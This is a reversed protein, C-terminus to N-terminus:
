DIKEPLWAVVELLKAFHLIPPRDPLGTGALRTMDLAEVEAEARELPWPRHHIEGRLVRGDSRAAYLCYRETLWRDLSSPAPASTGLRRYRAAFRAEPAGRHTRESRYLVDQGERHCSMRADFYPLHFLRRAARVALRSAADLSYFWVGPKDQAVVYTRLNLEAFASLGALVALVPVGRPRVGEMRFPVVSLWADGEFLDLELGSPLAAALANKAVPWHMFLLDHWEMAM